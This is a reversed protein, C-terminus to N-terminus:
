HAPNHSLLQPLAMQLLATMGDRCGHEDREDCACHQCDDELDTHSAKKIQKQKM